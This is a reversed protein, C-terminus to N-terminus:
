TPLPQFLSADLGLGELDGVGADRGAGAGVLVAHGDGSVAGDRDLLIRQGTRADRCAPV